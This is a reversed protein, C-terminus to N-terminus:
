SEFDEIDIEGRNKATMMCDITRTNMEDVLLKYVASRHEEELCSSWELLDPIGEPWLLTVPHRSCIEDIVAQESDFQATVEEMVEALDLYLCMMRKLSKESEDSLLVSWRNVHRTLKRKNDDSLDTVVVPTGKVALFARDGGAALNERMQNTYHDIQHRMREISLMNDTNIKGNM